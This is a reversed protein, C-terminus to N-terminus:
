AGPRAEGVAEVFPEIFADIQRGTARGELRDVIAGDSLVILTPTRRVGLRRALEPNRDTDLDVVRLRQKKTVRIWAVLSEM